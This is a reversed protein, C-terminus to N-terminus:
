LCSCQRCNFATGAAWSAGTTGSSYILSVAHFGTTSCPKVVVAVVAAVVAAAVSVVVGADGWLDDGWLDDGLLDDGLGLDDGIGLDDVVGDDVVNDPVAVEATKCAAGVSVTAMSMIFFISMLALMKKIRDLKGM